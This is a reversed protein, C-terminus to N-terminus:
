LFFFLSFSLHLFNINQVKRTKGLANKALEKLYPLHLLGIFGAMQRRDETMQRRKKKGCEANRMGFEFSQWRDEKKREANRMGFESNLVRDETKKKEKRMGFEWKLKNRRGCEVKGMGM